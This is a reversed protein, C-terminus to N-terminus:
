VLCCGISTSWVELLGVTARTLVYTPRSGLAREAGTHPLLPYRKRPQRALVVCHGARCVRAHLLQRHGHLPAGAAPCPPPCTLNLNRNVCLPLCSPRHGRMICGISAQIEVASGLPRRVEGNRIKPNSDQTQLLLKVREIPAVATKSVAGAVGGAALDKVFGMANGGVAGERGFSTFTLYSTLSWTALLWSLRLSRLPPVQQRLRRRREPLLGQLV